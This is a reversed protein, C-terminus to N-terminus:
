SITLNVSGGKALEEGNVSVSVQVNDNGLEDKNIVGDDNADDVISVAPAYEGDNIFVTDVTANDSGEKSVNGYRDTQTADVKISEGEAVTETWTITGNEYTYETGAADVLKGEDNLSLTVTSEVGGNSITLNVSGGKALEEGNVSVSVQVNDNGLEDKNIVGDDNADDVISVAPAYEGDNIFVTDVTANDSGATVTFTEGEGPADFSTAVRGNDIDAEALVIENTTTGDSVRITDGVSAGLPLGVIVDVDGNLENATIVGDDNADESITVTPTFLEDIHKEDGDINITEFDRLEIRDGTDSNEVILYGNSDKSFSLHDVRTNFVAKDTGAGGDIVLQDNADDTIINVTDNGEGTLVYDDGAETNANAWSGHWYHVADSPESQNGAADSQVAELRVNENIGISAIDELAVTWSGDTDVTAQVLPTGSEGEFYISITAGPEGTGHMTVDSYDSGASDDTINTIIPPNPAVIDVEYDGDKNEGSPSTTATFPNGAKDTGTVSAVIASDADSVLASGPVNISYTGDDKVIGTYTTVDDGAAQLTLTVTDGPKADGGVAGTVTVDGSAEQENVVDDDAITDITITASASTDITVQLGDSIDSNGASDTVQVTFNYAGASLLKQPTFMWNDNSDKGAFGLSTSGLFVEVRVADSDINGLAFTPTTDNTLNDTASDGSDSSAVLDITPKSVNTDKAVTDAATEVNGDQDTFTADVTLTGDKLSSVDVNELTFNGDSDVSVNSWELKNGASDTLVLDVTAADTEGINGSINATEDGTIEDDGDDATSDTILVSPATITDGDDDGDEGYTTDKAVTDDATEVNGDQDTFTANATVTGNSLGSVDVGTITYNGDADAEITSGDYTLTGDANLTVDLTVTADNDADSDSIVVQASGSSVGEGFNVMITATEDGTIEDDGDDATSDTILVSPATITDGDDDGDEGYETDKGVTDTKEAQNGDVDTSVATVTLEGDALDSVDVGTVTYNGNADVTVDGVNITISNTGDSIVLSDLSAGGEGITGSITATEDGTIEDDNDDATSDTISVSAPTIGDGDDDGDEGYETDLTVVDTVSGQNGAEDTVTMTVTLEGDALSSVDQGIVTVNGDGDVSIDNADVTIDATNADGDSIVISDIAAGDEVTGSFTVSTQESENILDDADDFAISNSSDGGEGPAATDVTHESSGTSEVTNGADDTSSVIVEFETDAALDSGAVDVTWNGSGDVTTSYETGNITMTVVDGESIDGGTATGTVTIPGGAERANIVDDSTINDVSVIGADASTDITASDSGPASTNGSTDTITADVTLPEGDAPTDPLTVVVSGDTINDDTLTFAQGNVTLVDGPNANTGTLDISVRIGDGIEQSSIVGDNNADNLITVGPANPATADVFRGFGDEQNTGIAGANNAISDSDFGSSAITESGDRAINVYSWSGSGTADQGAATAQDEQITIEGEGDLIQQQIDAIEDQVDQPLADFLSDSSESQPEIMLQTGDSLTIVTDSSDPLGLQTGSPLTAGESLTTLEGNVLVRGSGQITDITVNRSLSISKM